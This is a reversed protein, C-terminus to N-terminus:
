QQRGIEIADNENFASTIQGKVNGDYSVTSNKLATWVSPKCDNGAKDNLTYFTHVEVTLGSNYRRELAKLLKDSVGTITIVVKNDLRETKVNVESGINENYTQVEYLKGYEKVVVGINQGEVTYEKSVPLTITVDKAENLHISTKIEGWDNHKQQHIDVGLTKDIPKINYITKYRAILESYSLQETGESEGFTIPAFGEDNCADCAAKIDTKDTLMGDVHWGKGKGSDIYKAFYWIVHINDEVVTPSIKKNRPKNLTRLVSTTTTDGAAILTRLGSGNTSLLYKGVLPANETTLFPCDTYIMGNKVVSYFSSASTNYGLRPDVKVNFYGVNVVPALPNVARTKVTAKQLDGRNEVGVYVETSPADALWSAGPDNDIVDDNNSCAVIVIGVVFLFFNKLKM